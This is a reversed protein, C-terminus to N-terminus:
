QLLAPASKEPLCNRSFLIESSRLCSGVLIIYGELSPFIGPFSNFAMGGGGEYTNKM